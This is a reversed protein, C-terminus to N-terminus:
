SKWLAGLVVGMLAAMALTTLPQDRISKQIATNLNDAVHQVNESVAEAQKSVSQAMQQAGASAKDIQEHAKDRLDAVTESGAGRTSSQDRASSYGQHSTQAM